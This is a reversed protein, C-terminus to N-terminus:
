PRAVSFLWLFVGTGLGWAANVTAAVGARPWLEPTPLGKIAPVVYIAVLSPAAAGVLMWALWYAAGETRALLLSLGAGWLGGWFMKSVISPVGLPAIPDLPWAPREPPIIGAQNLLYWASQHFFFTAFAGAAFGLVLLKLLSVSM